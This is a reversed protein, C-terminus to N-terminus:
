TLEYVRKAGRSNYKKNKIEYTNTKPDFKFLSISLIKGKQSDYDVIGARNLKKDEVLKTLEKIIENQLNKDDVLDKIFEEIKVIKHFIPLKKWTKNYVLKNIEDLDDKLTKNKRKFDNKVFEIKDELFNIIM